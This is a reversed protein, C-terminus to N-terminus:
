YIVFTAQANTVVGLQRNSNMAQINHQVIMAM